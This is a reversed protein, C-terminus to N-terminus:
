PARPLAVGDRAVVQGRKVVLRRPPHAVVAEALTEAQVLVVDACDGVRLGYHPLRMVAAGGETCVSLAMELEDDRRFNNRLGLLMARELMDADGYPGWTDRIGDSGSCVRIGRARLKAVPPVPRSASGTTMIGIDLAAIQDLLGDVMATDADGLCFAHSIVVQGQMGLALTREFILEMSFAGLLGPEHLHIDVPRGFRQALGFVADLQGAPDRDIACPDLGGVVDAGLRLGAELLALTGPRALLGSQPFAVIEIDIVDRYADRTAMVGELGSLGLETDIDVHTRIHTTGHGISQVVQRASQRRPDIGWERKLRRETDIKDILRPGAQHPRWGMGLLSKDLHTHAEVLGPILLAGGGPEVPVGPPAEVEPGLGAIRGRRILLASPAGGMPRIDTILLDQTM